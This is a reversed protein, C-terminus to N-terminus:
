AAEKEASVAKKKAPKKTTKAAAKKKTKKPAPKILEQVEKELLDLGIELLQNAGANERVNKTGCEPCVWPKALYKVTTTHVSGCHPCTEYVVTDEPVLVCKAGRWECKYAIQAKLDCLSVDSLKKNIARQKKRSHYNKPPADHKRKHTGPKVQMLEKVKIDPLIIIDAAEAIQKSFNHLADKRKNRAEVHLKNIALERKKYNASKPSKGDAGVQRSHKRQLKAIRKAYKKYDGVPRLTDGDSTIHEGNLRLMVAMPTDSFSTRERTGEQCAFSVYYEDNSTHTVTISTPRGNMPRHYVMKIEGIKPLHVLGKEARRIVRDVCEKNIQVKYAKACKGKKKYTPFGATKPNEKLQRFFNQYANDLNRNVFHLMSSDLEGLWHVGNEDVLESRLQTILKGCDFRSLAKADPDYTGTKTEPDYPGTNSVKEYIVRGKKDRVFDGNEDKQPRRVETQTAEYADVRRRLLENYMWRAAGMHRAIAGKQEKTPYIRYKYGCSVNEVTAM